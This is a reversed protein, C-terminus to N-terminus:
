SRGGDGPRANEELWAAFAAEGMAELQTGDRMRPAISREEVERDGIVGIVPVKMQQAERIKFGLKENRLDAHARIGRRRLSEAVGSAYENQRDTVTVLRVQQPALWLPFAGGTHEILIGIFRELSGLIARHIM